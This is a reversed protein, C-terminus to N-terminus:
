LYFKIETEVCDNFFGNLDSELFESGEYVGEVGKVAENELALMTDMLEKDGEEVKKCFTKHNKFLDHCRDVEKQFRPKTVVPDNEGYDPSITCKPFKVDSTFAFPKFVSQMPNPTGTVFHFCPLSTNTPALLCVMSSSINPTVLAPDRLLQMMSRLDISGSKEELIKIGASLRSTDGGDKFVKQFNIDGDGPQWLSKSQAVEQLKASVADFTSDLTLSSTIGYIGGELKKAAWLQGATECVWAESRDTILFSSHFTQVETSEQWNGGQGHKDLLTSIVEVAGKASSARELALRLLDHGLLREEKDEDGLLKTKVATLGICVGHENAGMEAGWMWAPKSLFVANTNQVQDIEIYTCQAKSGESHKSAASYIIEQVEEAPRGSNKAFLIVGDKTSPPIVVFADSEFSSM